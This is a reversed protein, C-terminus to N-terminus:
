FFVLFVGPTRKHSDFSFERRIQLSQILQDEQAIRNMIAKVADDVACRMFAYLSYPCSVINSDVTARVWELTIFNPYCADNRLVTTAALKHWIAMQEEAFDVAPVIHRPYVISEIVGHESVEPTSPLVDRAPMALDISHCAELHYQLRLRQRPSRQLNALRQQEEQLDNYLTVRQQSAAGFDFPVSPLLGQAENEAAIAIEEDLDLILRMLGQVNQETATEQAAWGDIDRYPRVLQNNMAAM